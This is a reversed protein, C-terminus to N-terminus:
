VNKVEYLKTYHISYSTIVFSLNSTNEDILIDKTYKLYGVANVGLQFLGTQTIDLTFNGLSDATSYTIIQETNKKISVLLPM